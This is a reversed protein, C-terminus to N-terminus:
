VWFIYEVKGCDWIKTDYKSNNKGNEKLQQFEKKTFRSFQKITQSYYFCLPAIFKNFKFGFRTYLNDNINGIWRRDLVTNIRKVINNALFFNILAIIYKNDRIWCVVFTSL